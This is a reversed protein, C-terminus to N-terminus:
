DIRREGNFSVVQKIQWLLHMPMHQYAESVDAKWIHLVDQPYSQCHERIVEGLDQVNDLTVGAIDEKAIMSNLSYDSTSHNTVLRFKGGEKPVAHIPMGCMGLLLDPGFNFSYRGVLEEELIQGQLFELEAQSSPTPSPIEWTTLYEGHHTDAWPWFGEHLGQCVSRVFSPNPHNAITLLTEFHDINIPTSVRFLDPCSSITAMAASNLFESPPLRPLPEAMETWRATGSSTEGQDGWVMQQKFPQGRAITDNLHRQWPVSQGSIPDKVGAASM